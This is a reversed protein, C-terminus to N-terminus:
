VGYQQLKDISGKYGVRFAKVFFLFFYFIEYFDKNKISFVVNGLLIKESYDPFIGSGKRKQM